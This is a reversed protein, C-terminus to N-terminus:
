SRWASSRESQREFGLEPLQSFGSMRFAARVADSARLLIRPGPGIAERGAAVLLQLTTVDVATVDQMDLQVETGGCLGAALAQQFSLADALGIEGELKIVCSTENQTRIVPM